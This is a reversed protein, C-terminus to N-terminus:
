SKNSNMTGLSQRIQNGRIAEQQNITRKIDIINHVGNLYNHLRKISGGVCKLIQQCISCMAEKKNKIKEFHQWVFSKSKESSLSM